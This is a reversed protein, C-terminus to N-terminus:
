GVQVVAKVEGSGSCSWSQTKSCEQRCWNCLLCILACAYGVRQRREGGGSDAELVARRTGSRDVRSGPLSLRCQQTQWYILRRQGEARRCVGKRGCSM